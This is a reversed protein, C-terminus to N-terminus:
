PEADRVLCGDLHRKSCHDGQPEVRGLKGVQNNAPSPDEHARPTLIEAAEQSNAAPWATEGYPAPSVAPAEMLPFHSFLFLSALSPM